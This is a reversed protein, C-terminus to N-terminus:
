PSDSLCVSMSYICLYVSFSFFAYASLNLIVPFACMKFRKTGVFTRSQVAVVEPAVIVAVVMMMTVRWGIKIAVPQTALRNTQCPSQRHSPTCIVHMVPVTRTPYPYIRLYPHPLLKSYRDGRDPVRIRTPYCFHEVRQRRSCVRVCVYVYVCVYATLCVCACLRVPLVWLCM